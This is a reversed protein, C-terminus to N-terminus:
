SKRGAAPSRKRWNMGPIRALYLKIATYLVNIDDALRRLEKEERPEGHM